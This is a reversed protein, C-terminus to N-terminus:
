EQSDTNTKEPSYSMKDQHPSSLARYLAKFAPLLIIVVGSVIGAWGFLKAADFYYTYEILYVSCFLLFMPALLKQM